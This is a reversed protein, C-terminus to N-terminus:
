AGTVKKKTKELQFLEHNGLNKEPTM